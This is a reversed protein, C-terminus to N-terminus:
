ATFLDWVYAWNAQMNIEYLNYKLTIVSLTLIKKNIGIIKMILEEWTNVLIFSETSQMLAMLLGISCLLIVDEM